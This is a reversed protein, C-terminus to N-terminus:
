DQGERRKSVADMGGLEEFVQYCKQAEDTKGLRILIANKNYWPEPRKSNIAIARECCRIAEDYEGRLCMSAAKNSWVDDNEPNFPLAKDWHSSAEDYRGIRDLSVGLNHEVISAWEGCKRAKEEAKELKRMNAENRPSPTSADGDHQDQSTEEALAEATRWHSHWLTTLVRTAGEFCSIAERYSGNAFLRQGEEIRDVATTADYAPYGCNDLALDFGDLQGEEASIAAAMPVNCCVAKQREDPALISAPQLASGYKFERPRIRAYSMGRRDMEDSVYDPLNGRLTLGAAKQDREKMRRLLNDLMVVARRREILLFDGLQDTVWLRLAQQYLAKDDAGWLEFARETAINALEAGRLKIRKVYYEGVEQRTEAHPFALFWATEVKGFWGDIGVTRIIRSHIFPLLLAYVRFGTEGHSPNDEVLMIFHDSDREELTRVTGKEAPFGRLLPILVGYTKEM